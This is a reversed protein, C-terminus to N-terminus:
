EAVKAHFEDLTLITSGFVDRLNRGDPSRYDNPTIFIRPNEAKPALNVAELLFGGSVMVIEPGRPLRSYVLGPLESVFFPVTEAFELVRKMDFPQEGLLLLKAVGAQQLRKFSEALRRPTSRTLEDPDYTV